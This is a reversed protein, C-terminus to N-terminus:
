VYLDVLLGRIENILELIKLTSKENELLAETLDVLKQNVKEIIVYIKQRGENDWFRKQKTSFMSSVAENLFEHILRKYRVLEKLSSTSQLIKGQEEINELMNQLHKNTHETQIKAMEAAFGSAHRMKVGSEKDYEQSTLSKLPMDKSIKM